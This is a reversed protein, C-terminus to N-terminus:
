KDFYKGVHRIKLEFFLRHGKIESVNEWYILSNPKGLQDLILQDREKAALLLQSCTEREKM